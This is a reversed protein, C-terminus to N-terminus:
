PSLLYVGSTGGLHITGAPNTWAGYATGSLGQRPGFTTWTSGTSRAGGGGTAFWLDGNPALWVDYVYNSPLGDFAGPSSQTTTQNFVTWTTGRLRSAGLSSLGSAYLDGNPLLRLVEVDDAALGDRLGPASETNAVNFLTWASSAYRWLGSNTGVWLTGPTAALSQAWGRTDTDVVRYATGPTPVMVDWTSTITISNTTNSSVTYSEGNFLLRKGALANPTFSAGTDVLVNDETVATVTGAARQTAIANAPQESWAAGDFRSVTADDHGLWFSDEGDAAIAWGWEPPMRDFVFGRAGPEAFELFRGYYRTEPVYLTLANATNSAIRYFEGNVWLRLGALAGPTLTAGTVAYTESSIVYPTGAYSTTCSEDGYVTISTATNAAILFTHENPGGCYLVRLYRGVLEGPTWSWQGETWTTTFGASTANNAFTGREQPVPSLTVATAGTFPTTVSTTGDRAVRRVFPMDRGMGGTVLADGAPTVAFPTGHYAADIRYTTASAVDGFAQTDRHAATLTTATNDLVVFSSTSGIRVGRGVLAGPVFTAAADTLQVVSGSSLSLYQLQSTGTARLAAIGAGSVGRLEVQNTTNSRVRYDVYSNTSTRQDNLRVTRDVLQGAVLAPTVNLTVAVEGAADSIVYPAGPVFLDPYHSGSPLGGGACSSFWCGSSISGLRLTTASNSSIPTRVRGGGSGTLYVFRGALADTAYSGASDDFELDFNGNRDFVAPRGIMSIITAFSSGCIYAVGGTSDQSSLVYRPQGSYQSRVHTYTDPTLTAGALTFSAKIWVGPSSCSTGQTHPFALAFNAGASLAQLAASSTVTLSLENATNATVVGAVLNNTAIVSYGVWQDTTWAAGQASVKVRLPSLSTSGVESLWIRDNPQVQSFATFAAEPVELVLSDADNSLIAAQASPNSELAVFRGRLADVAFGPSGTLQLRMDVSRPSSRGPAWRVNSLETLHQRLCGPTGNCYDQPLEVQTADNWTITSYGTLPVGGNTFLMLTRGSHAGPTLGATPVRLPPIYGASQARGVLSGVWGFLPFGTYYVSVTATAGTNATIPYTTGIADIWLDEGVVSTPLGGTALTATVSVSGSTNSLVWKRGLRPKLLNGWGARYTLSTTSSAVIDLTAAYDDFVLHSSSHTTSSWPATADTITVEPGVNGSTFGLAYFGNLAANEIAAFASMPAYFSFSNTTTSALAYNGVAISSTYLDVGRSTAAPMTQNTNTITYLASSDSCRVVFYRQGPTLWPRPDEEMTFTTADHSAIAVAKGGSMTRLCEANHANPTYTGASDTVTTSDVTGAIGTRAGFGTAVQVGADFSDINGTPWSLSAITDASPAFATGSTGGLLTLAQVTHVDVGTVAGVVGGEWSGGLTGVPGRVASITGGQWVASTITRGNVHEPPATLTRSQPVEVVLTRAGGDDDLFVVRDDGVLWAGGDVPTMREVYGGASVFTYAAVVDFEFVQYILQGGGNASIAVFVNATVYTPQWSVQGTNANITMGSPGSELAYTVAGVGGGGATAQYAFANGMRVSTPPISTFAFSSGAPVPQLVLPTTTTTQGYTVAVNTLQAAQYGPATALLDYTGVPLQQMLFGGDPITVAGRTTGLAVLQVGEHSTKGAMTVNGRVAGAPTLTLDPVATTVGGKASVDLQASAEVTFPAAVSVTYLGPLLGEFGYGGDALTAASARNPGRVNVTLGSRDAVNTLVVRGALAATDPGVRVCAGNSCAEGSAACQAVTTCSAVCLGSPACAEGGQCDSNAFCEPSIPVCVQNLCVTGPTCEKDAVCAAACRGQICAQAAPCDATRTCTGSSAATCAGGLCAENAACTAATTCRVACVNGAACVLGQACDGDRLCRGTPLVCAGSQCLAPAACDADVGCASVCRGGPGCTEGSPCDSPRTCTGQLVVTCAGAVCAENAGCETAAACAKACVDGAACVQGPACDGSRACRGAPLVCAGGQCEAPAACDATAKCADVCRGAPGCVKGGTCESDAECEPKPIDPRSILCGQLAIAAVLWVLKTTKM